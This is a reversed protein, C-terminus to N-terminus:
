SKQIYDELRQLLAAGSDEICAFGRRVDQCMYDVKSM